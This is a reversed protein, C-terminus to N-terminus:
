CVKQFLGVETPITDNLIRFKIPTYETKAFIVTWNGILDDVSCIGRGKSIAPKFYQNFGPKETGNFQITIYKTTGNPMVFIISGVDNQGLGNVTMFVNEGIMYEFKNIAFPGSRNWDKFPDEEQKPKAVDIPEVFVIAAIVAAVVVGLICAGIIKSKL